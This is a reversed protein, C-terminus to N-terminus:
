YKESGLNIENKIRVVYLVNGEDFIEKDIGKERRIATNGAYSIQGNAVEVIITAHDIKGDNNFDFYLLDGMQIEMSNAAQRLAESNDIRIVDGNIYPNKVNSFYEYQKNANIWAATEDWTYYVSMARREEKDSHWLETEPIGGAYICQSVFNACNSTHSKYEPNRDILLYEVIYNVDKDDVDKLRKPAKTWDHAYKKAKERDYTVTSMGNLDVYRMPNNWCYTYENLTIPVQIHGKLIDESIFRGRRSDYERAEAFYTETVEDYRYGTYGFVSPRSHKQLTMTGFEDYGYLEEGETGLLRLPSGLHDTLYFGEGQGNRQASIDNDWIYNTTGEGDKRQLLNHYPKTMDFLYQIEKGEGKECVREGLGDYVYQVRRGTEDEAEELRHIAGYRYSKLLNGNETIERLNGRKDYGYTRTQEGTKEHILQGARNYAYLTEEPQQSKQYELKRTRNGYADYTYHRLEKGDKRVEMLRGLADYAYDYTGNEGEMGRRKKTEKLLNGAADYCYTFADLLEENEWHELKEIRGSEDYGYCTYLEEGQQKEIIRGKSDYRYRIEQGDQLLQSLSGTEDYAYDLQSGNPYTLSEIGGSQTYRYLISEGQPYVAKEVRGLADNEFRTEGLWDTVKQLAGLADYQYSVSRGDGYTVKKPAGAPTYDYTTRNGDRDTKACTRGLADYVYSETDGLANIAKTINGNLDREYRTEKCEKREEAKGEYAKIGILRNRSDYTYCTENGLADKVGILNGNADYAYGTENGLADRVATVNGMVDYTRQEQVTENGTQGTMSIQTLRNLSDYAYRYTVGDKVTRSKLNGERDYTYGEESGDPYRIGKLRGGKEYFFDTTKGGADTVSILKGLENYAYRTKEGLANISEIREGARNYSEKTRNGLADKREVPHGEEDYIYSTTNGEGDTHSILRNVADYAYTDKEGLANTKETLNGAEDYSYCTRNGMADTIGTIRERDDYDVTIKGSDPYCVEQLNWMVDYAYCTTNGRRDTESEIRNLANYSCSKKSGDPYQIEAIKGRSTPLYRTTNGMADTIETIQDKVDYTYRTSNGSPSITETVRNLEDYVYTTTEGYPNTISRINGKEDYSMSVRSGDPLTLTKAKGNEGYSIGTSRGLADTSQILRGKEDYLNKVKEKGNIKLSILHNERNYTATTKNGLPDITITLNGRSDYSYHTVNGREDRHMLRQGKANYTDREESGDAYLTRVNQYRENHYYYIKSGNRECLLVEKKEEEYHYSMSGGDAFHQEKARHEGDYTNTVLSTGESNKIEELNGAEDYSYTTTEGAANVAELLSGRADYRYTVERGSHDEVSKLRGEDYCFTLCAGDSKRFVRHILGKEGYEWVLVAGKGDRSEKCHGERDFLYVAGSRNRYQWGEETKLLSSHSEESHYTEEGRKKFHEEKGDELIIRILEEEEILTVEYPHHWGKGLSGGTEDIANYFRNFELVPNGVIKLDSKEYYFNGTSLNVPDASSKTQLNNGGKLSSLVQELIQRISRSQGEWKGTCDELAKQFDKTSKSGTVKPLLQTLDKIQTDLKKLSASIKKAEQAMKYDGQPVNTCIRNLEKKIQNKYNNYNSNRLSDRLRIADDQLQYDRLNSPINNLVTLLQDMEGILENRTDEAQELLSITKEKLTHIADVDFTRTKEISM